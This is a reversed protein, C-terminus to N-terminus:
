AAEQAKADDLLARLKDTSQRADYNIGLDDLEARISARDDDGDKKVRGAMEELMAELNAIKQEQDSYRKEAAAVDQSSLFGQAALKFARPNPVRVVNIMDEGMAAVDEVTRIGALKFAEAQAPNVGAWAALPTGDEPIEQGSKWRNYHPEIISWRANLAMAKLGENDRKLPKDKPKIESIRWWTSSQNTSGRPAIEVEDVPRDDLGTDPNFVYTTRFQKVVIAIDSM